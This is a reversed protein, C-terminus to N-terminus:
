RPVEVFAALSDDWAEIRTVPHIEWQSLLLPWEDGPPPKGHEHDYMLWGSLRVRRPPRDWPLRSWLPRFLASLREYRWAPTGLHFQPTIEAAAYWRRPSTADGPEPALDLHYDGDRARFMRRVYGELTVGRREIPAYGAVPLDRPLAALDAFTVPAYSAPEGTRDKMARQHRGQASALPGKDLDQLYALVLAAGLLLAVAAAIRLTV